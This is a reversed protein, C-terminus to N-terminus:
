KNRNYKNIREEVKKAKVITKDLDIVKNMLQRTEMNMAVAIQQMTMFLLIMTQEASVNSLTVSAQKGGKILRAKITPKKFFNFM